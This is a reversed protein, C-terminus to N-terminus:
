PPPFPTLIAQVTITIPATAFQSGDASIGEVWLRHEGEVLQWWIKYPPATQTILPADDLWFTITQMPDRTAAEFPIQQNNLPITPSLRYIAMPDPSTLRLPTEASDIENTQPRALEHWLLWGHERAWAHLTPPLDLAIREIKANAPTTENALEMTRQDLIVKHFFNDQRTPVTGQIFWEQRRYPCDASPLLGSMKCLEVQVLGAPQTFPKDAVGQLAMRIFEHWIPGAGSVGTVDVMPDLDANGVWVGVVLDPTYGITWNDRFDNTTGTKAAAIRGINLVSNRGFSLSRAEDDSLIDSILWAVKPDLLREGSVAPITKLLTGDASRIDLILRENVKQGGTAFTGYARTLDLLRVDGGGLALALDYQDSSGLAIGYKALQEIFTPVGIKDLAKVAPINLSSALAERASVPGHETRSFNIPVYSLGDHTVFGTRVDEIMTAATWPSEASSFTSAYILPKLASGPQRPSIAMNIAGSYEGNEDEANGVLALIDGTQPDIAVLAANHANHPVGEPPDNLRIMQSQVMAEAQQQWEWNLTTRVIIGGMGMKEEPTYWQDIQQQVMLVFHPANIPYPTTAYSLPERLALQYAEGDIMEEQRLLGLVITQRDKAIAPNSFPNYYAPAQLLGVLLASQALTLERAPKAFYTQAAAEIGYAQAGFYMQNLYLALIEEKSQKRGLEWALLSERLKRRISRDFREQNSLLLTRALQQTITSGGAIVEGGRLDIWFARLIGEIDVGPHHYYNRDETAIVAQQVFIPIQDFPLVINRGSEASLIDYLLEGNRDTIRISPVVIRDQLTDVSPLDASVWVWVGIGMILFLLLSFLLIRGIKRRIM